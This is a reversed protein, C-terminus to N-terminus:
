GGRRNPDDGENVSIISHAKISPAVPIKQLVRSLHIAQHCTTSPPRSLRLVWLPTGTRLYKVPCREYSVPAPTLLRQVLNGVFNWGAIFSGRHPTSIFVVRSVEPLPELFFGKKLLERTNDSLELEDLPKRSVANWLRDGTSIAQM